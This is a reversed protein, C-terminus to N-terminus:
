LFFIVNLMAHTEHKKLMKDQELANYNGQSSKFKMDCKSIHNPVNEVHETLLTRGIVEACSCQSLLEQSQKGAHQLTPMDCIPINTVHSSVRGGAPAM